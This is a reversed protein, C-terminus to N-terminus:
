GEDKNTCSITYTSIRLMAARGPQWVHPEDSELLQPLSSITLMVNSRLRLDLLHYPLPGTQWAVFGHVFPPENKSSVHILYGLEYASLESALDSPKEVGSVLSLHVDISSFSEGSSLEISVDRPARLVLSLRQRVALAGEQATVEDTASASLVIFNASLPLDVMNRRAFGLM